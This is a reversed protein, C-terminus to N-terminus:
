HIVQLSLYNTLLLVYLFFIRVEDEEEHSERELVEIASGRRERPYSSKRVIEIIERKRWVTVVGM